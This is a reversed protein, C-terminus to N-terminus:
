LSNTYTNKPIKLWKQLVYLYSRQHMQIYKTPKMWLLMTKYHLQPLTTYSIIHRHFLSPASGPKRSRHTLLGRSLTVDVPINPILSIALRQNPRVLTINFAFPTLSFVAKGIVSSHWLFPHECDKGTSLRTESSYGPLQTLYLSNATARGIETAILRFIPLSKQQKKPELVIKVGCGQDTVRSGHIQKAPAARLSPTNEQLNAHDHYPPCAPRGEWTENIDRNNNNDKNNDINYAQVSNSILSNGLHTEKRGSQTLHICLTQDFTYSLFTEGLESEVNTFLADLESLLGRM